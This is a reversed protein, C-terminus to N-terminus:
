GYYVGVAGGENLDAMRPHPTSYVMGESLTYMGEPVGCARLAFQLNIFVRRDDSYRAAVQHILEIPIGDPVIGRKCWRRLISINLHILPLTRVQLEEYKDPKGLRVKKASSTLLKGAAGLAFALSTDVGRVGTTHAIPLQEIFEQVDQVGLLHVPKGVRRLTEMAEEFQTITWAERRHGPVGISLALHEFMQKDYWVDLWTELCKFWGEFTHAQPVFMCGKIDTKDALYRAAQWSMKLTAKSEDLVDPLVVEDAGVLTAASALDEPMMSWGEFAGNDLIVHADPPRSAENYYQAYGPIDRVWPAIVM